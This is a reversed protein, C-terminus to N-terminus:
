TCAVCPRATCKLRYDYTFFDCDSCPIQDLPKIQDFGERLAVSVSWLFLFMLTICFSYFFITM